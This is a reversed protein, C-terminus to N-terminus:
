DSTTSTTLINHTVMERERSRELNLECVRRMHALTASVQYVAQEFVVGHVTERDLTDHHVRPHQLVGRLFGGRQGCGVVLAWDM